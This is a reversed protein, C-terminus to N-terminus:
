ISFNFLTIRFQLASSFPLFHMPRMLWFVVVKCMCCVKKTGEKISNQVVVDPFKRTVCRICSIHYTSVLPKTTQTGTQKKKEQQENEGQQDSANRMKWGGIKM